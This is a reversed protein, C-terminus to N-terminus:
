GIKKPPSNQKILWSIFIGFFIVLCSKMSHWLSKSRQEPTCGRLKVQFRFILGDFLPSEKKSLMMKLNWILNRPHISWYPECKKPPLIKNKRWFKHHSLNRGLHLITTLLQPISAIFLNTFVHLILHPLHSFSGFISLDVQPCTTTWWYTTHKPPHNPLWWSTM